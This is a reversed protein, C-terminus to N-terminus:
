CISFHRQSLEESVCHVRRSQGEAGRRSFSAQACVYGPCYSQAHLGDRDADFFAPVARVREDADSRIPAHRYLMLLVTEKRHVVEHMVGDLSREPIPAAEIAQDRLTPVDLVKTCRP